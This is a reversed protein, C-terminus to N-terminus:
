RGLLFAFLFPIDTAAAALCAFSWGFGVGQGFMAVDVGLSLVKAFTFERMFGDM